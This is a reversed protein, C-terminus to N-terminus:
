FNNHYFAELSNVCNEFFHKQLKLKMHINKTVTSASLLLKHLFSSLSCPFTFNTSRTHICTSTHMPTHSPWLVLLPATRWTDCVKKHQTLTRWQGPSWCIPFDLQGALGSIWTDSGGWYYSKLHICCLGPKKRNKFELDPSWVSTKIRVLCISEQTLQWKLM